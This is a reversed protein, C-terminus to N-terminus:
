GKIEAHERRHASMNIVWLCLFIFMLTNRAHQENKHNISSKKVKSNTKKM